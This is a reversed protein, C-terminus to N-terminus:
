SGPSFKQELRNTKPNYRLGRKKLFGKAWVTERRVFKGNEDTLDRFRYEDQHVVNWTM